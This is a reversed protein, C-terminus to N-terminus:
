LAIPRTDLARGDKFRPTEEIWSLGQVRDWILELMQIHFRIQGKLWTGSAFNMKETKSTSFVGSESPLGLGKL